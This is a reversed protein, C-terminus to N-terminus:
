GRGPRILFVVQLLDAQPSSRLDHFHKLESTPKLLTRNPVYPLAIAIPQAPKEPKAMGGQGQLLRELAKITDLTVPKTPDIPQPMPKAPMSVPNLASAPLGLTEALRRRGLADLKEHHLTGFQRLAKPDGEARKELAQLQDMFRAFVDPPVNEFYVMFLVPVKADLRKKLEGDVILRIGSAQCAQQLRAFAKQQEWCSIDYSHASGLTLQDQLWKRDLERLELFQPLKLDMSRFPNKENLISAPATLIPPSVWPSEEPGVEGRYRMDLASAVEVLGHDYGARFVTVVPSFLSQVANAAADLQGESPLQKVVREWAQRPDPPVPKNPTTPRPATTRAPPPVSPDGKAVPEGGRQRLSELIAFTLLGIGVLLSAAVAVRIMRRQRKWRLTPSVDRPQLRARRIRALVDKTFQPPLKAHPLARLADADARLEALLDAAAPSERLLREVAQKEAPGLVGDVYATLLQLTREDM